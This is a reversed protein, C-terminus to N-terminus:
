VSVNINEQTEWKTEILVVKMRGRKGDHDWGGSGENPKLKTVKRRQKRV